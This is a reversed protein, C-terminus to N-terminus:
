TDVGFRVPHGCLAAQEHKLKGSMGRLWSGLGLSPVLHAFFSYSVGAVSGLCMLAWHWGIRLAMLLSCARIPSGRIPRGM